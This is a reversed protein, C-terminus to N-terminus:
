EIEELIKKKAKYEEESIEGNAFRKKLIDMSSEKKNECKDSKFRALIIFVVVAWFIFMGFGHFMTMNTNMYDFM